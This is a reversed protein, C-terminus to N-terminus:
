LGAMLRVQRRSTSDFAGGLENRPDDAPPGTPVTTPQIGALREVEIGGLLRDLANIAM